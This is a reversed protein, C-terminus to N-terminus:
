GGKQFEYCSGQVYSSCGENDRAVECVKRGGVHGGSKEPSRPMEAFM